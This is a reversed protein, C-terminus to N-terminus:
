KYRPIRSTSFSYYFSVPILSIEITYNTVLRFLWLGIRLFPCSLACPLYPLFAGRATTMLLPLQCHTISVNLGIPTPPYLSTERSVLELSMTRIRCLCRREVQHGVCASLLMYRYRICIIIIATSLRSPCVSLCLRQLDVNDGIIEREREKERNKERNIQIEPIFSM